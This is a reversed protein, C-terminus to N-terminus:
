LTESVSRVGYDYEILLRSVEHSFSNMRGFFRIDAIRNAKPVGDEINKIIRMVIESMENFDNVISQVEDM